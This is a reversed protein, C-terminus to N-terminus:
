QKVKKKKKNNVLSQKTEYVPRLNSVTSAKIIHDGIYTSLLSM